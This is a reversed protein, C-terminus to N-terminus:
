RGLRQKLTQADVREVGQSTLMLGGQELAATEYAWVEERTRAPNLTIVKDDILKAIKPAEQKLAQYTEQVSPMRGSALSANEISVRIQQLDNTLDIRRAANYANVIPGAGPQYNTGQAATAQSKAKKECGLASAAAMTLVAWLLVRM